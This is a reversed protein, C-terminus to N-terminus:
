KGLTDYLPAVPRVPEGENSVTVALIKIRENGPLTLTTAGAPIDIAYAYLYSYAYADNSGDSAHRHSAFWAVPTRKIFGPTLGAFETVTRMRPPTGVAPAPQGQRPPVPEEHSKWIRNDWQGVYGGWDQITLDVSASGVKFAAKQDGEAAALVYLRTFGGVPLQITQGRAVAANFGTSPGLTFAIGGYPLTAPLM